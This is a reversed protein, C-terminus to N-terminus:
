ETYTDAFDRNRRGEQFGLNYAKRCEPRDYTYGDDRDSGMGGRYGCLYAENEKHSAFRLVTRDRAVRTNKAKYEDLASSAIRRIEVCAERMADPNAFGPMKAISELANILITERM